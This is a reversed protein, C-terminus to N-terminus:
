IQSVEFHSAGGPKLEAASKLVRPFSLAVRPISHPKRAPSVRAVVSQVEQNIKM